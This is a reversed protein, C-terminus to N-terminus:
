GGLRGKLTVWARARSMRQADTNTRKGTRVVEDIPWGQDLRYSLTKEGVGTKRSLEALCCISGNFEIRRVMCTNQAQEARTAWRCNEPSYPGDNDIRDITHQPSPRMGMDRAFAGRDLRWRECVRIGRGGYRHYSSHDPDECRRLIGELIRREAIDHCRKACGCSRSAGRVLVGTRRAGETGCQCRCWVRSQGRREKKAVRLVTWMGFQRGILSDPTPPAPIVLGTVRMVARLEDRGCHLERAIQRQSRGAAHLETIRAVRQSDFM